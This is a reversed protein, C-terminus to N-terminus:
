IRRDFAFLGGADGQTHLTAWPELQLSHHDYNQDLERPDSDLRRSRVKSSTLPFRDCFRALSM